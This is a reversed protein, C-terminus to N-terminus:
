SREIGAQAELPSLEAADAEKSGNLDVADTWTLWKYGM